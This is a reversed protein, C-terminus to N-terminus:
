ELKFSKNVKLDYEARISINVKLTWDCSGSVIQKTTSLYLLCEVWHDHGKLTQVCAGSETNWIKITRDCSGSIIHSQSKKSKKRCWLKNQPQHKQPEEEIIHGNCPLKYLKRKNQTRVDLSIISIAEKMQFALKSHSSDSSM